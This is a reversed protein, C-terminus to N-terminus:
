ACLTLQGRLWRGVQAEVQDWVREVRERSENQGSQRDIQRLLAKETLYYFAMVLVTILGIVGGGVGTVIGVTVKDSPSSPDSSRTWFLSEPVNVGPDKSCHM